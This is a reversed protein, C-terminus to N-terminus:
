EEFMALEEELKQIKSRCSNSDQVLSDARKRKENSERILDIKSKREAKLALKNAESTLNAISKECASLKLQEEKIKDRVEHKKRNLNDAKELDKQEELFTRYRSRALRCYRLMDKTIDLNQVAKTDTIGRGLLISSM